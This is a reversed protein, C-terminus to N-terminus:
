LCAVFTLPALIYRWTRPSCRDRVNEASVRTYTAVWVKYLITPGEVEVFLLLSFLQVYLLVWPLLQNSHPSPPVHSAHAQNRTDVVCPAARGQDRAVVHINESCRIVSEVIYTGLVFRIVISNVINLRITM